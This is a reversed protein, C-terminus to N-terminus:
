SLKLSPLSVFTGHSKYTHPSCTVLRTSSKQHHLRNPLPLEKSKRWCDHFDTEKVIPGNEVEMIIPLFPISCLQFLFVPNKLVGSSHYQQHNLFGLCVGPVYLVRLIIPYRSRGLTYSKHRKTPKKPSFACIKCM